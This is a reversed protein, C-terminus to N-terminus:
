THEKPDLQCYGLMPNFLPTAGFLRYAMIQVLASEIRQRMYAATPPSSNIGQSSPQPSVKTKFVRQFLVNESILFIDSITLIHFWWYRTDARPNITCPNMTDYIHRTHWKTNLISRHRLLFMHYLDNARFLANNRNGHNETAYMKLTIHAPTEAIPKHKRYTTGQISAPRRQAVYWVCRNM